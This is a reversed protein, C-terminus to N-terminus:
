LCHCVCQEKGEVQSHLQAVQDMFKLATQLHTLANGVDGKKYLALATNTEILAQMALCHFGLSLSVSM